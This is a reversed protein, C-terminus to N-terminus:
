IFLVEHADVGAGFRQPQASKERNRARAARSGLSIKMRQGISIQRATV